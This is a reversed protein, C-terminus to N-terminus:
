NKEFEEVHSGVKNELCNGNKRLLGVTECSLTKLEKKRLAAEM